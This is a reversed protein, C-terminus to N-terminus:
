EGEIPNPIPETEAEFVRSKNHGNSKAKVFELASLEEESIPLNL